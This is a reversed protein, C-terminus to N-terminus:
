LLTAAWPVLVIREVQDLEEVEVMAVAERLLDSNTSKGKPSQPFSQTQTYPKPNLSLLPGHSSTPYTDEAERLHEEATLLPLQSLQRPLIAEAEDFSSRVYRFFVLTRFTYAGCFKM